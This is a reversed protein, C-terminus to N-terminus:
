GGRLEAILEVWRRSVADQGHTSELYARVRRSLEPRNDREDWLRRAGEHFREPSSEAAVGLGNREIRGDPDFEYSLCPVGRAWAELFLNPMGETPGTNVVAVSREVLEMAERHPRLELLELNPLRTAREGVERELGPVQVGGPSGGAREPDLPRPVMWFRAEPVAEALDLYRLPRKGHDLRGVWLFAEPQATSLEAPEAFSPLEEVRALRPFASRALEVQARTQVVVADAMRIGLKYLELGIRRGVFFEFTFDQNNSAAFILRRRRARCFLAAIGLAPLGHRFVYVEADAEELASWISRLQALRVIPGHETTVLPRQVLTLLPSLKPDPDRVPVVIHAVRLGARVLGAALLTTQREAGGTPEPRREYLCAAGPSYIAVHNRPM